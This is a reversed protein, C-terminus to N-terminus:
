VKGRQEVEKRATNEAAQLSDSFQAHRENFSTDQMIRGDAMMRQHIPITYGRANNWNSVCPPVKWNARDENTLKRPPSRMITPPPSAHPRPIRKHKFRPPEM